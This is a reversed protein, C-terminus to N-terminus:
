LLRKIHFLVSLDLTIRREDGMFQEITSPTARDTACFFIKDGKINEELFAINFQRTKNAWYGIVQPYSDSAVGIVGVPQTEFSVQLDELGEETLATEVAPVFHQEIFEAFPKDELKPPKEKKKAKAPAKDDAMSKDTQNLKSLLGCELCPRGWLLLVGGYFVSELPPM